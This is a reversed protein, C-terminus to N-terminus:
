FPSSPKKGDLLAEKQEQGAGAPDIQSLQGSDSVQM